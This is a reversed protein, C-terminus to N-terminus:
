REGRGYKERRDFNAVKANTSRGLATGKNRPLELVVTGWDHKKLDLAIQQFIM